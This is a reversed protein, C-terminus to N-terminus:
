PNIRPPNSQLREAASFMSEAYNPLSRAVYEEWQPTPWIEIHDREGVLTVSEQAKLGARQMSKEPIVVRGQQDAKVDRAMASVLRIQGSQRDPVPSQSYALQLRDYALNPYIWLHGDPGLMVVFDEGDTAPVIRERLAIPLAMRHKGDIVQEFEGRFSAM